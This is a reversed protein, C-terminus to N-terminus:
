WPEPGASCGSGRIMMVCGGAVGIGPETTIAWGSEGDGSSARVRQAPPPLVGVAGCVDWSGRRVFVPLTGIAATLCYLASGPSLRWLIASLVIPTLVLSVRSAIRFALGDRLALGSLIM